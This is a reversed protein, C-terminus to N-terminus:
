LVFLATVYGGAVLWVFMVLAAGIPKCGAQKFKEIGTQMGLAAMATTLLFMDVNVIIEHVAEPLAVVSNAAIVALFLLAFWPISIKARKKGAKKSAFYAMGFLFPVLLMVRFMKVAVAAEAAQPSVADGAAAVHAVEHLTAGIFIGMQKQDLVFVGNQYLLPYLFMALTGFLVVTGVAVAAKYAKAQLVFDSAVVAAAGCISSGACLLLSLERDLGFLKRAAVYGILLTSVMMFGGLVFGEVGLLKLDEIGLHFGYLVIATKLLTKGCWVIGSKGLEYRKALPTNAYVMGAIIAIILPSVGAKSFIALEAGYMAAAAIFASLIIGVAFSYWTDM